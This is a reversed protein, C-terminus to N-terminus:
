IAAAQLFSIQKTPAHQLYHRATSLSMWEALKKRVAEATGVEEHHTTGGVRLSYGSYIESKSRPINCCHLLATPIAVESISKQSFPNQPNPVWTAKKHWTYKKKSRPPQMRAPFLFLADPAMAQMNIVHRRLASVVRGAPSPIYSMQGKRNKRPLAAMIVGRLDREPPPPPGRFSNRIERGNRLIWWLARSGMSSIEIPRLTAQFGMGIVAAMMVEDWRHSIGWTDCILAVQASVMGPAQHDRAIVNKRVSDLLFQVARLSRVPHIGPNALARHTDIMTATSEVVTKGRRQDAVGVLFLRVATDNALVEADSSPRGQLAFLLHGFELFEDLGRVKGKLTGPTAYTGVYSEYREELQAALPSDFEKPMSALLKKVM